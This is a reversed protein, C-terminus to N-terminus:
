DGDGRSGSHMTVQGRAHGDARRLQRLDRVARRQGQERVPEVGRDAPEVGVQQPEPAHGGPSPRASESVAHREPAIIAASALVEYSGTFTWAPGGPPWSM